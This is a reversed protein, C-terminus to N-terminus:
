LDKKSSSCNKLMVKIWHLTDCFVQLKRICQCFCRRFNLWKKQQLLQLLVRSICLTCYYSCRFQVIHDLVIARCYICAKHLKYDEIQTSLTESSSVFSARPKLFTTNIAPNNYPAATHQVPTWTMKWGRCTFM